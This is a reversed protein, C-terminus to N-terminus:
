YRNLRYASNELKCTRAIGNWERLSLKSKKDLNDEVCRSSLCRNDRLYIFYIAAFRKKRRERERERKKKSEIYIHLNLFRFELRPLHFFENMWEMILFRVFWFFKSYLKLNDILKDVSGRKIINVGFGVFEFSQRGFHSFFTFLKRFIQDWSISERGALFIIWIFDWGLEPSVDFAGGRM